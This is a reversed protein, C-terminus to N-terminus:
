VHSVSTELNDILRIRGLRIAGLLVCDERVMKLPALTARDCVALYDLKARPADTLRRKMIRIVADASRIGGEISEAGARLSQYLVPAVTRQAPTLFVNRSSLALGDPERVTPHVVVTCDINLDSALRRVLVTQQYDKQGFFARDPRTLCLLKTVVTAVGQFHTPRSTGEWRQSLDPLSVATQFGPPYMAATEPAFVVDVGEKRCLSQDRRLQRPYRSYDETPGFQTPNVFISVIVADCQLRAARILAQHGAHLAGMTPVLGIRVGQRQLNRSWQTMAALSHITKM